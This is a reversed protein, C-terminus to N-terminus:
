EGRCAHSDAVLPHVDRRREGHDAHDGSLHRWRKWQARTVFISFDSGSQHDELLHRETFRDVGVVIDHSGFRGSDFFANAKLLIDDNDRRENECVGCRSPAHFRTNANARDLLLTGAIRDTTEAGMELSYTRRSLHAQVLVNPAVIGDYHLAALSEPDHQDTLSAEDYLNANFRANTGLTLVGFYSGVLSHREGLTSTLKGEYRRQDNGESYSIRPSVQSTPNITFAPVAITQRAQDNKAWRGSAFFWLRDRLLAGGATAEWVHNLHDEREELAPTQAAWKPNSLSDRLSANFDNGGSRTITNVVGGTFRGYEAPIAGTLLTTEEIADEVYLPRMQSRTNETVVVGNVLVLNDYGAGGAIQLQGGSLTNATVGPALQASAFQNRLVPLRDLERLPLTTAIPTTELVSPPPASVIINETLPAFLHADVRSTQSLHLETDRTITTFGNRAFTINYSGPPLASFQYAGSPGTLASRAGQLAPSTITVTASAVPADGTTVVGTLSATIQAAAPLAFFLLLVAAARGNRSRCM